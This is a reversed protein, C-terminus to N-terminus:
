ARYVEQGQVQVVMPVVGGNVTSDCGDLDIYVVLRGDRRYAAVLVEGDSLPEDIQITPRSGPKDAEQPLFRAAVNAAEEATVPELWYSSEGTTSELNVGGADARYAQWGEGWAWAILALAAARDTGEVKPDRGFVRFHKVWREGDGLLEAAEQALRAAVVEERAVECMSMPECPEGAPAGCGPCPRAEAEATVEARIEEARDHQEEVEQPADAVLTLLADKCPQGPEAGCGPCPKPAEEATTSMCPWEAGQRQPTLVHTRPGMNTAAGKVTIVGEDSQSVAEGTHHAAIRQAEQRDVDQHAYVTGDTDLIDLHYTDAEVKVAAPRVLFFEVEQPFGSRHHAVLREAPQDGDVGTGYEEVPQDTRLITALLVATQEADLLETTPEATGYPRRTVIKAGEISGLILEAAAKAMRWDSRVADRHPQTAESTPHAAMVLLGNRLVTVGEETLYTRVTTYLPKGTSTSWAGAVEVREAKGRTILAEISRRTGEIIEYRGDSNRHRLADLMTRIMTNSLRTAM